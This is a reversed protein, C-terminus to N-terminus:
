PELFAFPAVVPSATLSGLSSPLLGSALAYTAVASRAAGSNANTWVQSSNGSGNLGCATSTAAYAYYYVGPQLVVATIASTVAGTSTCSMSGSDILKAGGATYVGINFTQGSSVASVDATIHGVTIKYPVVVQIVKVQDATSELVENTGASLPNIITPLFLGGTNSNSISLSSIGSDVFDVVPGSGVNATVLDGTTFTSLATNTTALTTSGTDTLAGFSTTSTVFSTGSGAGFLMVGTGSSSSPAAMPLIIVYSDLTGGTVAGPAEVTVSDAQVTSIATGGVFTDGGAVGSTNHAVFNTATVSGTSTLSQATVGGTTNISPPTTSDGPLGLDSLTGGCPVSAVYGTSTPFTQAQTRYVKCSSSGTVASTIINIYSTPSLSACVNSTTGTASAQTTGGTADVAVVVYKWAVSGACTVYSFTPASPALLPNSYISTVSAPSGTPTAQATLGV